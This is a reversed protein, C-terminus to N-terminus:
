TQGDDPTWDHGADLEKLEALTMDDIRGSGDTTRDVTDDHMLVLVGDATSHMDMELVDVGLEAANEFAFMTNGPWLGDGGQHAIVWPRAPGATFFPQPEAPEALIALLGVIVVLLVVVLLFGRLLRSRM